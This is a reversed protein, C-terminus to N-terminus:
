KNCANVSIIIDGWAMFIRLSVSFSSEDKDAMNARRSAIKYSSILNCFSLFWNPGLISQSYSASLIRSSYWDSFIFSSLKDWCYESVNNFYRCIVPLCRVADNCRYDPLNSSGPVKYYDVNASLKLILPLRLIAITQRFKKRSRTMGLCYGCRM